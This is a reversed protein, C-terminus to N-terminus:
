VDCMVDCWMLGCYVVGCMKDCWMVDCMVDCRVDRKRREVSPEVSCLHQVPGM